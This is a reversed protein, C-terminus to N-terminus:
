TKHIYLENTLQSLSPEFYLLLLCHTSSRFLLIEFMIFGSWASIWYSHSWWKRWDSKSSWRISEDMSKTIKFQQWCISLIYLKIMSKSIELLFFIFCVSSQYFKKVFIKDAAHNLIIQSASGYLFFVFRTSLNPVRLGSRSDHTTVLSCPMIFYIYTEFTVLHFIQM